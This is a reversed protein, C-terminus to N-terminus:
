TTGAVSPGSLAKRASPRLGDQLAAARPLDQLNSCVIRRSTPYSSTTVAGVEAKLMVM